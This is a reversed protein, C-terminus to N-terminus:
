GRAVILKAGTDKRAGEPTVLWIQYTAPPVELLYEDYNYPRTANLHNKMIRGKSKLPPCDPCTRLQVTYGVFQSSAV